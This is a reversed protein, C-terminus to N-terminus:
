PEPAPAPPMEGREWVVYHETELVPHYGHEALMAPPVHVLPLLQVPSDNIVVKVTRNAVARQIPGTWYHATDDILRYFDARGLNKRARWFGDRELEAEGERYVGYTEPYRILETRKAAFCLFSPAVIEDGPATARDIADALQAVESRPVFGFGYVSGHLWNQNVLPTLWALCLIIFASGGIIQYWDARPAMEETVVARLASWMRMLGVAAVIAIFPLAEMYNHAWATPSLIGFFAYEAAVMALVLGLVRGPARRAVIAIVGLVFLPAMVDLIQGPYAAISTTADRGKLFHFIFVQYIFDFGYRFDCFASLAGVLLAIGAGAYIARMLDRRVFAVYGLLVAAPILATLKVACAAALLIALWAVERAPEMEGDIAIIAAGLVLPAVFCEREYVHYRFVLSSFAYLIASGEAAPRDMARRAVAYTLLSTAFIAAENLVELSLHSAGFVKIYAGAIWELLPLHPHVFDVYPRMGAAVLWASELYFDDEVWIEPYFLRILRAVLLVIVLAVSIGAEARRSRLRAQASSRAPTM